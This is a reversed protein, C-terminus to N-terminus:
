TSRSLNRLQSSRASSLVTRLALLGYRAAELAQREELPSTRAHFLQRSRLAIAKEAEAVRQLIMHKDAEFVAARYLATWTFDGDSTAPTAAPIAAM